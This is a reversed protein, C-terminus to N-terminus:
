TTTEAASQGCGALMSTAMIMALVSAGIKRLKM